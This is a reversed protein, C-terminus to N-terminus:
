ILENIGYNRQSDRLNLTFTRNLHEDYFSYNGGFGRRCRRIGGLLLFILFLSIFVFFSVMNRPSGRVPISSTSMNDLRNVTM